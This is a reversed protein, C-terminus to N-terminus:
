SKYSVAQSRRKLGEKALSQGGRLGFRFAPQRIRADRGTINEQEYDETKGRIYRLMELFVM